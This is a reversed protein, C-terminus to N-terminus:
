VDHGDHFKKANDTNSVNYGAGLTQYLNVISALQQMKAQNINLLSYDVDLKYSFTNSLSNSGITYMANSLNYLKGALNLAVQYQIFAKNAASHMSLGNDVDAFASKVTQIYNYYASYYDGRAQDINAYLGLNLLPMAAAVQTAWFDANGNFLSSLQYSAAGTAGTLSINPFFASTALGIKANSAHVQYEAALIDPRTSLIRSPLNIPIVYDVVIKDFNNKSMITAPNRNILVQLANQTQVINNEITPLQVKLQAILQESIEINMESAIGDRYKAKAYERVRTADAIMQQQLLLQKQLGLLIFYSGVVQSIVSLRVANKTAVQMKVNLNALEQNKIIEFINLSYKPTFDAYEASFNNVTGQSNLIPALASNNKSSIHNSSQGTIGGIGMNIIPVWMMHVKKLNAQTQIINGIAVQINNNNALSQQVLNNLMSDHFQEWWAIKTIDIKNIAAPNTASTNTNTDATNWSRPANVNPKQYDPGLLGCNSVGIGLIIIRM